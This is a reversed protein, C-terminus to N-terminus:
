KSLFTSLAEKDELLHKQILIRLGSLGGNKKNRIQYTRKELKREQSARIVM